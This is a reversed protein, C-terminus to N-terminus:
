AEPLEVPSPLRDLRKKLTSEVDRCSRAHLHDRTGLRASWVSTATAREPRFLGLCSRTVRSRIGGSWWFPEWPKARTQDSAPAGTSSAPRRGTWTSRSRGPCRPVHEPATPYGGRQLQAPALRPAYRTRSAVLLEVASGKTRGRSRWRDARAIQPSFRHQPHVPARVSPGRLRPGGHARRPPGVLFAGALPAM